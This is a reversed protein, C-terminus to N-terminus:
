KIGFWDGGELDALVLEKDEKDKVVEAAEAALDYYKLATDHNEALANARAIGEYAYFIDFDEMEDKFQKTLELCRMAYEVSSGANGLVNYVRALLWLGRQKNVVTGVNLWHYYSAYAAALMRVDDEDTRAQNDLLRWTEGHIKKALVLQAQDLTYKDQDAM